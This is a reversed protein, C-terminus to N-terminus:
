SEPRSEGFREVVTTGEAPEEGLGLLLLALGSTVMDVGFVLGVAWDASGPLGLLILTALVLSVAGSFALWGWNGNGRVALGMLLQVVGEVLFYVALLLTLTTLGVIPNALVVVGAGGYLVALLIEFLAGGWRQASFAAAVRVLAGTVLLAGFVVALALGTAFPAAIALVGLLAILAGGGAVVTRNRSLSRPDARSAREDTGAGAGVAAEGLSEDALPEEGVADAEDVGSVEDDTLGDGALDDDTLDDDALPEDTPEEREDDTDDHSM